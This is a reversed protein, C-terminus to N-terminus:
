CRYNKGGFSYNKTSFDAGMTTSTETTFKGKVYRDVLSTKGVGADGIVVVKLTNQKM